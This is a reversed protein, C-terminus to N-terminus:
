GNSKVLRERLEVVEKGRYLAINTTQEIELLLTIVQDPSLPARAEGRSRADACLKAYHLLREDQSKVFEDGTM